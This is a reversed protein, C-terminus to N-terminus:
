ISNFVTLPVLGQVRGWAEQGHKSASFVVRKPSLRGFSVVDSNALSGYGSGSLGVIQEFSALREELSPCLRFIPYGVYLEAIVCGVSFVDIPKSWFAGSPILIKIGYFYSFALSM